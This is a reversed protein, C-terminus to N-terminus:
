ATEQFAQIKFCAKVAEHDDPQEKLNALTPKRKKSAVGGLLRPVAIIVQGDVNFYERVRRFNDMQKAGWMLKLKLAGAENGNTIGLLIDLVLTEDPNIHFNMGFGNASNRKVKVTIISSPPKSEDIYTQANEDTFDESCSHGELFREDDSTSQEFTLPLVMGDACSM